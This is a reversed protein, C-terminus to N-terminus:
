HSNFLVSESLSVECLSVKKQSPCPEQIHFGALLVQSNNELCFDACYGM